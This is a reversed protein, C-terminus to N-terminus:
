AAEESEYLTVSAIHGNAMVEFIIDQYAYCFTSGFPNSTNTSSSRHLVVPRGRPKIRSGLTDWLTVSQVTITSPLDILQTGDEPQRPVTLPLEFECRHYMNFNYHGPFNTHLVFKKARQTKADFLVDLGLTFYNFFFDSRTTAKRAHANHIKMKDESKYFVRSPAGLAMAVEQCSAGFQITRTFTQRSDHHRARGDDTFLSLRLEKTKGMDRLVLLSDLHILNHICSAPLPPARPDSPNNGSYILMKSVVPSAGSPFMLSSFGKNLSPQYKQDVSFFFSLGPFNIALIQREWDYVGPHTAGFSHDIQEISPIVEPSSFTIGCYKLKVAKMNYVEIVKLRQCLPDFFLQIGDQSLNLILDTELSTTDSYLVHVGRITGVQHQIIAVAQSFHMGLVFEWKESSLSQEPYVELELM